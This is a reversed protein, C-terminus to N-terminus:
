QGFILFAVHRVHLAFHLAFHSECFAVHRQAMNSLALHFVTESIPGFFSITQDINSPGAEVNIFEVQIDGSTQQRLRNYDLTASSM